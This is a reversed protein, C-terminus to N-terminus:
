PGGRRSPRSSGRGPHCRAPTRRGVSSVASGVASPHSGFGGDAEEPTGPGRRWPTNVQPNLRGTTVARARLAGPTGSRMPVWRSGAATRNTTEAMQCRVRQLDVRGRPSLHQSGPSPTQRSSDQSRGLHSAASSASPRPSLESPIPPKRRRGPPVGRRSVTLLREGGTAHPGFTSWACGAPNAARPAETGVDPAAPRRAVM